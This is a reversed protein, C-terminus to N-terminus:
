VQDVSTMYFITGRVAKSYIKQYRPGSLGLSGERIFLHHYVLSWGAMNDASTRM